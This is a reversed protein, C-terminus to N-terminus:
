IYTIGIGVAKNSRIVNALGLEIHCTCNSKNSSRFLRCYNQPSINDGGLDGLRISEYM